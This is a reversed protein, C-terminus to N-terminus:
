VSFIAPHNEKLSYYNEKTLIIHDVLRVGMSEAIEFIKETLYLDEDSPSPNGSPHNHILIFSTAKIEFAKEFVQRTELFNYNFGGISLIKKEILEQKGNLYLAQCYEQKKNAIDLCNQFVKEPSNIKILNNSSYFRRGLEFSALIKSAQANAIGPTKSITKIFQNNNELSNNKLLNSSKEIKKYVKKSLELVNKNKSGSSLIIALLESNTLAELGNNLLKERPRLHLAMKKIPKM